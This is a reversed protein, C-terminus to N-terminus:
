LLSGKRLLSCQPRKEHKRLPQNFAAQEIMIADALINTMKKQSCRIKIKWGIRHKTVARDVRSIIINRIGLLNRHYTIKSVLNASQDEPNIQQGIHVEVVVKVHFMKTKKTEGSAAAVKRMTTQIGLIIRM